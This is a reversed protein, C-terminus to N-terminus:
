TIKFISFSMVWGWGFNVLKWIFYARSWVRSAVFGVSSCIPSHILFTRWCWDIIPFNPFMWSSSAPIQSSLTSTVSSPSLKMPFFVNAHSINWLIKHLLIYFKSFYITSSGDRWFHKLFLRLKIKGKDLTDIRKMSAKEQFSQHDLQQFHKMFNNRLADAKNYTFIRPGNVCNM